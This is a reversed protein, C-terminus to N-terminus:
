TDRKDITIQRNNTTILKKKKEEKTMAADLIYNSLIELYKPTLQSSPANACIKEVLASREEPLKLSYDLKIPEEM